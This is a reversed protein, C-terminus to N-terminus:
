FFIVFKKDIYVVCGGFVIIMEIIMIFWGLLVINLFFVNDVVIFVFLINLIRVEIWFINKIFKIFYFYVIFIM